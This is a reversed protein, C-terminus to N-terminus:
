DESSGTVDKLAETKDFLAALKTKFQASLEESDEWQNTNADLLDTEKTFFQHQMVETISQPRKGIDINLMSNLLEKFDEDVPNEAGLKRM